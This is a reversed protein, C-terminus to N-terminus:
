AKWIKDNKYRRAVLLCLMFFGFQSERIRIFEYDPFVTEIRKQRQKDDEVLEDNKFHKEEDWEMILKLDFNIYDPWAEADKIKYEHGNTAYQGESEFINEDFWKWIKCSFPSYAPIIQGGEGIQTEIRKITAIRMNKKAEETAKTGTRIQRIKEKTEGTHTMGIHLKSLKNKAQQTYRRGTSAIRLKERTEETIPKRNKSAIRCKERYDESLYAHKKGCSISCFKHTEKYLPTIKIVKGCYLCIMEVREVRRSATLKEQHEKTRPRKKGMAAKSQKLRTEASAKKGTNPGICNVKREDSWKGLPIGMKIISMKKKTEISVVKGRETESIKKKMWEPMKQGKKM